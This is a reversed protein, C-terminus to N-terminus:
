VTINKNEGDCGTIQIKNYHNLKFFIFEQLEKGAPGWPFFACILM